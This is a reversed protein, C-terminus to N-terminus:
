VRPKVNFFKNTSTINKWSGLVKGNVDGTDYNSGVVLLPLSYLVSNCDNLWLVLLM